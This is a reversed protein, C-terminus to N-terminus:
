PKSSRFGLVMPQDPIMRNAVWVCFFFLVTAAILDVLHHAGHSLTAPVMAANLVLALWRAPTPWCYWAVMLAMIMHFSPFAIVGNVQDPTIVALGDRALAALHAGQDAGFVLGIRAQIEVPVTVYASPGVSPWIVWIPVIIVMSVIGVFLFRHLQVGRNMAALLIITLAVQPVSSNYVHGLAIGVWPWKAVSEVFVPWVYGLQADIAMLQHDIVPNVFPFLSFILIAILGSFAMFVGFGIAGHAMREANKAMRMYLGMGILCVAAGIGTVFSQWEVAQGRLTTLTVTAVLLAALLAILLREGPLTAQMLGPRATITKTLDM